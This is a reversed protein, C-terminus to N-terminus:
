AEDTLSIHSNCWNHVMFRVRFLCGTKIATDTSIYRGRLMILRDPKHCFFFFDRTQVEYFLMSEM